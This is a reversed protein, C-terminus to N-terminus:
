FSATMALLAAVRFGLLSLRYAGNLIAGFCAQSLSIRCGQTAASRECHRFFHLMRVSSQNGRSGLGEIWMQHSNNMVHRYTTVEGITAGITEVTDVKPLLDARDWQVLAGGCIRVASRSRRRHQDTMM